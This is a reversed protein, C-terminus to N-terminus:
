WGRYDDCCSGCAPFENNNQRDTFRVDGVLRALHCTVNTGGTNYALHPVGANAAKTVPWIINGLQLQQLLQMARGYGPVTREVDELPVQRAEALFAAALDVNMRVLLGLGRGTLADLDDETYRGGQLCHSLILGAADNLADEARQSALFEATTAATGDDKVLQCLWRADVRDLMQQPTAFAM